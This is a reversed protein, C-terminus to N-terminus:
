WQSEVIFCNCLSCCWVSNVLIERDEEGFKENNSKKVWCKTMIRWLLFSDVVAFYITVTLVPWSSLETMQESTVPQDFHSHLGPDWPAVRHGWLRLPKRSNSAKRRKKCQGGADPGPDQSDSLVFQVQLLCAVAYCCNVTWWLPILQNLASAIELLQSSDSQCIYRLRCAFYQTM